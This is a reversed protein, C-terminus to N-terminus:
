TAVGPILTEEPVFRILQEAQHGCGALAAGAGGAASLKLFTRRKM